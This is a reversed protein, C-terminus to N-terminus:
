KKARKTLIIHSETFLIKNKTYGSLADYCSLRKKNDEIAVCNSLKLESATVSLSLLAILYAFISARM